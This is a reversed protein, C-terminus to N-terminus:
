QCPRIKKEVRYTVQGDAGRSGRVVSATEGKTASIGDCNGGSLQGFDKIIKLTSDDIRALTASDWWTGQGAYTFKMLLEQRGDGDLDSLGSITTSGTAPVRTVVTDGDMVVLTESGWNDAHSASCEGVLIVYVTQSAHPATFSGRAMQSVKPAFTGSKRDAELTSAVNPCQKRDTLYRGKFVRDLIRKSEQPDLAAPGVLNTVSPDLVKSDPDYLIVEGDALPAVASTTSPSSGGGGSAVSTTSAPPSGAASAVVNGVLAYASCARKVGVNCTVLLQRRLEGLSRGPLHDPNGQAAVTEATQVTAVACEAGDPYKRCMAKCMVPNTACWPEVSAFEAPQLACGFLGIAAGISILSGVFRGSM